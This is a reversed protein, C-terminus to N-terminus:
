KTLDYDFFCGIAESNGGATIYAATTANNSTACANDYHAFVKGSAPVGDDVKDDISYTDFPSLANTGLFPPTGATPAAVRLAQIGGRERANTWGAAAKTEYFFQYGTGPVRSPADIVTLLDGAGLGNTTGGFNGEVLGASKLHQWARHTEDQNTVSTMVIGDGNGSCTKGDFTQTQQCATDAGTGGASGWLAAANNIDGPLADYKDGFTHYASEYRALEQAILRTKGQHILEQGVFLVGAILGIVVLAVSLEVLTFAARYRPYPCPSAHPM